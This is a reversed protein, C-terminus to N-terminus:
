KINPNVSRKIITAQESGVAGVVGSKAWGPINHNGPYDKVYEDDCRVVERKCSWIASYVANLKFLCGQEFVLDGPILDRYLVKETSTAHFYHATKFASETLSLRDKKSHDTALYADDMSKAVVTIFEFGETRYESKVKFAFVKDQKM